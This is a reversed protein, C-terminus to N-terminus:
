KSGLPSLTAFHEKLKEDSRAKDTRAVCFGANCIDLVQLRKSSELADQTFRVEKGDSDGDVWQNSVVTCHWRQRAAADPEIPLGSADVRRQLTFPL